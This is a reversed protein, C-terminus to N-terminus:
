KLLEFLNYSHVTQEFARKEYSAFSILMDGTEPCAVWQHSPYYGIHFLKWFIENIKFILNNKGSYVNQLISMINSLNMKGWNKEIPKSIAKYHMWFINPINCLLDYRSKPKIISLLNIPSSPDFFYRQTKATTKNIFFNTRRLVKEIEWCPKNSEVSSNWFGQYTINATQEIVISENTKSDSIIINIGCTRNLNMIDIAEKATKANDLVLKMRFRETLGYYTEDCSWSGTVAICIGNENFGGYTVIFGIYGPYISSYGENPSRIFIIHNDLIEGSEPDKLNSDWDLSRAFYLKKDVTAEGSAAIISCHYKMRIIQAVAVKEFSLGSGDAMGNMEDIIQQPFYKKTKNLIDLCEDYSMDYKEKFYNLFFLISKKVDEKLLYGHQYGMEYYSGSQYLLKVGNSEELRGGKFIKSNENTIALSNYSSLFFLFIISIILIKTRM